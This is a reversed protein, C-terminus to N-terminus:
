DFTVTVDQTQTDNPAYVTFVATDGKQLTGVARCYSGLTNDIATGDIAVALAPNAAGFGAKAAGTGPVAREIVLGAQAPFGRDTLDTEQQPYSFGMGNWGISNGSKLKDAILRVRDVGIAYFQGEVGQAVTKFTNVGVLRGGNLTVLPGGSNGPNITADTQLANRYRTGDALTVNTKVISVVGQTTTLEADAALSGPYGLAIVEDGQQLNTQSGLPMTQLGKTNQVKLVALDECPAVAVVSADREEAQDGIRVTFKDSENTVHGNTVILGKSADLVWGSGLAVSEGSSPDIGRIQATSPKIDAIIQAATPAPAAEEEGGIAGTVFLVVVIIAIVVGAGAVAAIIQARKVSKRLMIREIRSPSPPSEPSPPAGPPAGMPPPPPAPQSAQPPPPQSAQPPPQAAQPPLPPPVARAVPPALMEEPAQYLTAGDAAMTAGRGESGPEVLSATMVTEGCRVEDQPEILTPESIRQGNVHTGNTSRLDEVLLRGSPNLSFSAHERSVKDDDLLIDCGEERGVVVREKAFEHPEAEGDRSRITVWM